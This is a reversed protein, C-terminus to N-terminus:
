DGAQEMDRMHESGPGGAVAQAAVPALWTRVDSGRDLTRHVPCREAIEVMRARQIEDLAGELYIEREFLDRAEVSARHHMVRVQVRDLAFDIELPRQVLDLPRPHDLDGLTTRHMPRQVAAGIHPGPQRRDCRLRHRATRARFVHAVHFLGAILTKQGYARRIAAKEAFRM